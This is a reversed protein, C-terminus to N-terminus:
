RLVDFIVRKNMRLSYEMQWLTLPKTKVLQCALNRMLLLITRAKLLSSALILELILLKWRKVKSSACENVYTLNRHDTRLIFCTDRLLYEYKKFMYVFAYCEKVTVSWRSVAEMLSKSMFAVPVEVDRDVIQFLYGGIGYDSADTHLFIPCDPRVFHLTQCQRIAERISNWSAEAEEMWELKRNRDYNQVMMNLPAIKRCFDPIHSKFYNGSRYIVEYAKGSHTAPDLLGSKENM